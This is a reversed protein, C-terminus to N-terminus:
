NRQITKLEVGFRCASARAREQFRGLTGNRTRTPMVLQARDIWSSVSTSAPTADTQAIHRLTGGVGVQDKTTVGSPTKAPM